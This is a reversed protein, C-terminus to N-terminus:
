KKRRVRRSAKKRASISRTGRKPAHSKANRSATKKAKRVVTKAKGVFRKGEREATQVFSSHSLADPIARAKAAITGLTSGISEAVNSLITEDQIDKHQHSAM